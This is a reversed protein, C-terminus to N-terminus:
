GVGPALIFGVQALCRSKCGKRKGRVLQPHETNGESRGMCAWQQRASLPVRPQTYESHNM